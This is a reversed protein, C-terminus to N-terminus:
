WIAAWFWVSAYLATVGVFSLAGWVITQVIRQVLKDLQM